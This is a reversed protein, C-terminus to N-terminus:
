ISGKQLSLLSTKNPNFSSNNDSHHIVIISNSNALPKFKEYFRSNFENIISQDNLEIKKEKEPALHKLILQYFYLIQSIEGAEKM